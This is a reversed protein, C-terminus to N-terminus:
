APVEQEHETIESVCAYVGHGAKRHAHQREVLLRDCDSYVFPNGKCAYEFRYVKVMKTAPKSPLRAEIFDAIAVYEDYSLQPRWGGPGMDTSRRICKVISVLAENSM